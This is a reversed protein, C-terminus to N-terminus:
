DDHHDSDGELERERSGAQTRVCGICGSESPDCFGAGPARSAPAVGLGDFLLARAPVAQSPAQWHPHWQLACRGAAVVM